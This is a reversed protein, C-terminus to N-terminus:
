VRRTASTDSHTAVPLPASPRLSVVVHSTSPAGPGVGVGHVFLSALRVGLGVGDRAEGVAFGSGLANECRVRLKEAPREWEPGVCQADDRTSPLLSGHTVLLRLFLAGRAPRGVRAVQGVVLEVGGVVLEVGAVVPPQIIGLHSTTESTANTATHTRTPPLKAIPRAVADLPPLSRRSCASRSNGSKGPRGPLPLPLPFPWSGRGVLPTNRPTDVSAAPPPWCPACTAFTRSPLGADCAPNCAPSTIVATSPVATVLGDSSACRMREWWLPSWTVIVYLRLPAEFSTWTWSAFRDASFVGLLQIRICRRSRRGPPRTRQIVHQEVPEVVHRDEGVVRLAEVREVLFHEVGRDRAVVELRRFVGVHPQRDDMDARM